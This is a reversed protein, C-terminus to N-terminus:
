KIPKPKAKGASGDDIRKPKTTSSIGTPLKKTGLGLVAGSRTMLWLGDPTVFLEGSLSPANQGVALLGGTRTAMQTKNNGTLIWSFLTRGFFQRHDGTYVRKQDTSLRLSPEGGDAQWSGVIGKIRVMEAVQINGGRCAILVFGTSTADVDTPERDIRLTRRLELSVAEVVQLLGQGGVKATAYLTRGDPSLCFNDTGEALDLETDPKRDATSIRILKAPGGNEVDRERELAYIWKGGPSVAM